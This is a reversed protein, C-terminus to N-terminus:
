RSKRLFVDNSVSELHIQKGGGNLTGKLMYGIGGNSKTKKNEYDIEFDSYAEGTITKMEVNAGENNKWCVDVFGSISKVFLNNAFAGNLEIDSSITEVNLDITAPVFIEFFIDSCVRNGGNKGNTSWFNHNDDPCDEVKGNKFQEKDFDSVISVSENSKQVKWLMAENLKGGNIQVTAKIYVENKDWVSVKINNAFKLNLILKSTTFREEIVRQAFLDRGVGACFLLILLVNKM